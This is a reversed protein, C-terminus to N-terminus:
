HRKMETVVARKIKFCRKDKIDVIYHQDPRNSMLKNNYAVIFFVRKKIQCYCDFKDFVNAHHTYAPNLDPSSKLLDIADGLKKQLTLDVKEKSLDNTLRM